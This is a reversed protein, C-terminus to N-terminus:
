RKLCDVCESCEGVDCVGNNLCGVCAQVARKEQVIPQIKEAREVPMGKEITPLPREEVGQMEEGSIWVCGSKTQTECSVEDPYRSCLVPCGKPHEPSGAAWTCDCRGAGEEICEAFVECRKDPGPDTQPRGGRRECDKFLREDEPSCMVFGRGSAGKLQTEAEQPCQGPNDECWMLCEEPNKECYTRCEKDSTCGGPGGFEQPGGQGGPGTGYKEALEKMPGECYPLIDEPGRIGLSYQKIKCDMYIKGKFGPPAQGEPLEAHLICVDGELGKLTLTPGARGEPMFTVPKCVRIARDFCRGDTGCNSGEAKIEEGEVPKTPKKREAEAGIMEKVDDSNSLMVYVIDKLSEKVSKIGFRIQEMDGATLSDMKGRLESKIEDIKDKIGDFMSSARRFRHEDSSGTSAYYDGIDEAQRSLKDLEIKLQELKFAIALLETPEPVNEVRDVYIDREDGKEVCNSYSVCGREDRKVIMEGGKMRCSDFAEKPPDRECFNEEVCKFFQCGREDFDKMAKLGRQSCATEVKIRVEATLPTCTDKREEVCKVIKCGGEFSIAPFMGASRCKDISMKEEEPPPCKEYGYIPNPASEERGKEGFKCDYFTCGSNDQFPVPNGGEKYCRDKMEAQRGEDPCKKIQECVIKVFGTEKEVDQHCGEPIREQQIQCPDCVCNNNEIRCAVDSGGPCAQREPCTVQVTKREEPRAVPQKIMSTCMYGVLCGKNDFQEAPFADSPCEPKQPASTPCTVIPVEIPKTEPTTITPETTPKETTEPPITIVTERTPETATEPTTTSPTTVVPETSPATTPTTGGTSPAVTTEPTTTKVPESTTPTSPATTTPTTEPTVAVEAGTIPPYFRKLIDNNLFQAYVSSTLLQTSLILIFALTLYKM